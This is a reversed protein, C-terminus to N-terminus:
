QTSLKNQRNLTSRLSNRGGYYYSWTWRAVVLWGFCRLMALLQPVCLSLYINILSGYRRLHISNPWNILLQRNEKKKTKNAVGQGLNLNAM